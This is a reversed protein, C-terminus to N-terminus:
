RLRIFLIHEVDRIAMVEPLTVQRSGARMRRRRRWRGGRLPLSKLPQAFMANRNTLNNRRYLKKDKSKWGYFFLSLFRALLRGRRPPFFVALLKAGCAVSSPPHDTLLTRRLYRNVSKGRNMPSGAQQRGQPTRSRPPQPTTASAGKARGRREAGSSVSPHNNRPELM